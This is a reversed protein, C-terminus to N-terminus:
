PSVVYVGGVGRSVFGRLELEALAAMADSLDHGARTLAHLTEEGRAVAEYV